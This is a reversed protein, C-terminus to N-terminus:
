REDEKEMSYMTYMDENRSDAKADRPLLVAERIVVRPSKRTAASFIDGIEKNIAQPQLYQEAAQRLRNREDESVSDEEIIREIM